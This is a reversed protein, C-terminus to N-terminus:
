EATIAILFPLLNHTESSVYDISAIELDPRPNEWVSKFLRLEKKGTFDGNLDKIQYSELSSNTGRWVIEASEAHEAGWGPWWAVKLVDQGNVIPFEVKSGDAYHMWYSAAQGSPIRYGYNAELFHINAGHLIQLRNLKQGIKIGRVSTVFGELWPERNDALQIAGRVDFIVDSFTVLGTPLNSLDFGFHQLNRAPHWPVDLLVNYHDTLDIQKLDADPDRVPFRGRPISLREVTTLLSVGNDTSNEISLRKAWYRDAHLRTREMLDSEQTGSSEDMQYPFTEWMRATTDLSGSVIRDGSPHWAITRITGEHAKMSILERESQLDWIAISPDGYGFFQESYTTVLRRSDPSIAMSTIDGKSRMKSIEIGLQSDWIRITGDRGATVLQEGNSSYVIATVLDEHGILSHLEKGNSADWIKTTKDASGTALQDKEPHWAVSTIKGTHGELSDIEQGSTTDWIKAILDYGATAVRNGDKNFAVTSLERTHGLLTLLEVGSDANWIKGTEDRSVTAIRSGNPSFDIASVNNLHGRLTHLNAGSETDWIEVIGLSYSSAMRKGDPDFAVNMFWERHQFQERGYDARWLKLEGSRDGSAIWQVDSSISVSSVLDRHGTLRRLERGTSTDWIQIDRNRGSTIFLKGDSSFRGESFKCFFSCRVKGSPLEWIGNKGNKGPICILHDDKSFFPFDFDFFFVPLTTVHEGTVARRIELEKNVGKWLAYEPYAVM